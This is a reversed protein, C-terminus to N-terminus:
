LYVKIAQAILMYGYNFIDDVDEPICKVKIKRNFLDLKIFDSYSIINDNYIFQTSLIIKFGITEKKLEGTEVDIQRRYPVIIRRKRHKSIPDIFDCRKIYVLNQSNLDEKDRIQNARMRFEDIEEEELILNLIKKDYLHSYIGTYIFSM